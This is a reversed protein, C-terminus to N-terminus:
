PIIGVLLWPPNSDLSTPPKFGESFYSFWNPHNAVWYIPFYFIAVLGGVLLPIANQTLSGGGSCGRCCWRTSYAVVVPKDDWWKCMNSCLFPWRPAKTGASLQELLQCFCIKAMHSDVCLYTASKWSIDYSHFWGMTRVPSVLVSNRKVFSANSLFFWIPMNEKLEMRKQHISIYM